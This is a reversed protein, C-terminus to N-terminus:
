LLFIRHRISGRIMTVMEMLDVLFSGPLALIRRPWSFRKREVRLNRVIWPLALLYGEPLLAVGLVIGVLALLAPPHTPKWFVKFSQYESYGHRKVVWPVDVWRAAEKMALLWSSRRVDHEVLAKDAFVGEIGLELARFGMDTDEATRLREDFGDLRELDARQYFINCTQMFKANGVRLTRSFPGESGVQDAAPQTRGVVYVGPRAVALGEELWQPSPVCDDDTFAVVPATAERWGRNRAAAPGANHEQRLIRVSLPSQAALQALTTSTADNSGDDVVILEFDQMTQAELAAFLRELLHDRNYTAVVVTVRPTM